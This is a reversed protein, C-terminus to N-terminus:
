TSLSKQIWLSIVKFISEFKSIMISPVVPPLSASVIAISSKDKIDHSKIFPENGCCCIVVVGLDPDVTVLGVIGALLQELPKNIAIFIKLFILNSL